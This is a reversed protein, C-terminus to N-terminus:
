KNYYGSAARSIERVEEQTLIGQSVYQGALKNAETTYKLKISYGNADSGYDANAKTEAEKLKQIAEEKSAKCGILFGVLLLVTILIRKM